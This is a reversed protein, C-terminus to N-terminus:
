RHCADAKGLQLGNAGTIADADASRKRANLNAEIRERVVTQAFEEYAGVVHAGAIVTQPEGGM